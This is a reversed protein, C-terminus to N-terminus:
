CYYTKPSPEPEIDAHKNNLYDVTLKTFTNLEEEKKAESRTIKKPKPSSSTQSPFLRSKQQKPATTTAALPHLPCM